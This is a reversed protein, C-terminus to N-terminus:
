TSCSSHWRERVLTILPEGQQTGGNRGAPIARITGAPTCKDGQLAAHGIKKHGNCFWPRLELMDDHYTLNPESLCVKGQSSHLMFGQVGDPEIKVPPQLTLGTATGALLTTSGVAIWRESEKERGKCGGADCMYLTAVVPKDRAGATIAQIELTTTSTNAIEFFVGHM